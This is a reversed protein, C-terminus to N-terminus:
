SRPPPPGLDRNKSLTEALKVYSPPCKECTCECCNSTSKSRTVCVSPCAVSAESRTIMRVRSASPETKGRWSSKALPRISGRIVHARRASKPPMIESIYDLRYRPPAVAMIPTSNVTTVRRHTPQPRRGSGVPVHDLSRPQQGLEPIHAPAAALDDARNLGGRQLYLSICM